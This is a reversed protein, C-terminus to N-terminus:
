EKKNEEIKKMLKNLKLSRQKLIVDNFIKIWTRRADNPPKNNLM